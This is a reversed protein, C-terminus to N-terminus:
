ATAKIKQLIKKQLIKRKVTVQVIRHDFRSGAFFDFEMRAAEHTKFSRLYEVWKGGNQYEVIYKVSM